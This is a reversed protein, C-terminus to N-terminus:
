GPSYDSRWNVIGENDTLLATGADLKIGVYLLQRRKDDISGTSTVSTTNGDPHVDLDLANFIVSGEAATTGSIINQTYGSAGQPALPHDQSATQFIGLTVSAAGAITNLRLVVSHINLSRPLPNNAVDGVPFYAWSSSLAYNSATSQHTVAKGSHSFGNFM